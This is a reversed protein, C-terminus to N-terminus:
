GVPTQNRQEKTVCCYKGEHTIFAFGRPMLARDHEGVAYGQNKSPRQLPIKRVAKTKRHGRTKIILGMM